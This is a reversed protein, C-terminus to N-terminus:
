CLSQKSNQTRIGSQYFRKLIKVQKSNRVAQSLGYLHFWVYYEDSSIPAYLSLYKLITAYYFPLNNSAYYSKGLFSIAKVALTTALFLEM